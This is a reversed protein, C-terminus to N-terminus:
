LHRKLTPVCLTQVQNVYLKKEQQFQNDIVVNANASLTEFPEVKYCALHAFDYKINYEINNHLKAAPACLQVLDLVKYGQELFQDRVRVSIDIPEVDYEIDYCMFHDLYKTPDIVVRPDSQAYSFVSLVSTTFGLVCIVVIKQMSLFIGKM